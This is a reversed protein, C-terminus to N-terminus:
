LCHSLARRDRKILLGYKGPALHRFDGAQVTTPSAPAESSIRLGAQGVAVADESM